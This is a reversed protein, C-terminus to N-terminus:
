KSSSPPVIHWRTEAKSLAEDRAHGQLHNIERATRAAGRWDVSSGDLLKEPNASFVPECDPRALRVRVHHWDVSTGALAADGCTPCRANELDILTEEEHGITHPGHQHAGARMIWLGAATGFVILAGFTLLAAWGANRIARADAAAKKAQRAKKKSM